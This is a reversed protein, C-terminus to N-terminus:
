SPLGQPSTQVQHEQSPSLLHSMLSFPSYLRKKGEVKQPLEGQWSNQSRYAGPWVSFPLRLVPLGAAPTARHEPSQRLSLLLRSLRYGCTLDRHQSGTSPPCPVGLEWEATEDHFLSVHCYKRNKTANWQDLVSRGHRGPEGEEERGSSSPLPCCFLPDQHPGWEAM